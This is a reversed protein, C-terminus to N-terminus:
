TLKEEVEKMINGPLKVRKTLYTFLCQHRAQASATSRTVNTPLQNFSYQTMYTKARPGHLRKWVSPVLVDAAYFSQFFVDALDDAKATRLRESTEACQSVTMTKHQELAALEFDAAAEDTMVDDCVSKLKGTRADLKAGLMRRCWYMAQKKNMNYQRRDGESDAIGFTEPGGHPLMEGDSRPFMQRFHCNVSIGSIVLVKPMRLTYWEAGNKITAPAMVAPKHTAFATRWATEVRSMTRNFSQREVLVLDCTKFPCCDQQCWWVISDVMADLTYLDNKKKQLKDRDEHLAPM